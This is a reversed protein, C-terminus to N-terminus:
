PPTVLGCLRVKDIFWREHARADDRGGAMAGAHRGARTLASKWRGVGCAVVPKDFEAGAEYYGGPEVYLVAARSRADKGLAFAFEPAAYQIYVDKGSSILTTTGWGAM